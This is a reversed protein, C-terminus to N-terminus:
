DMRATRLNEDGILDVGGRVPFIVNAIGWALQCTIPVLCLYLTARFLRRWNSRADPSPKPNQYDIIPLPKRTRRLHLKGSSGRGARSESNSTISRKRGKTNM